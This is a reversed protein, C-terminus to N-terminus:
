AKETETESPEAPKEPEKHMPQHDDGFILRMLWDPAFKELKPYKQVIAQFVRRGWASNRSALVVGSIIIPLGVPLAPTLMAVIVGIPILLFGIVALASRVIAMFGQHLLNKAVPESDGTSDHNVPQPNDPQLM